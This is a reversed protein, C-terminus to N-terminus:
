RRSSNLEVIGNIANVLSVMEHDDKIRFEWMPILHVEFPNGFLARAQYVLSIREIIIDERLISSLSQLASDVSIIGTSKWLTETAQFFNGKLRKPLGDQVQLELCGNPNVTGRYSDFTDHNSIPIGDVIPRFVYYGAHSYDLLQLDGLAIGASQLLAVADQSSNIREDGYFYFDLRGNEILEFFSSEGAVETYALDYFLAAHMEINDIYEFEADEPYFVGIAHKMDVPANHAKYVAITKKDPIHVNANVYMTHGNSVINKEIHSPTNRLISETRSGDNQFYTNSSSSSLTPTRFVCLVLLVIAWLLYYWVAAPTKIPLNIKKARPGLSIM